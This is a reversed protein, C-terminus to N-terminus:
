RCDQKPIHASLSTGRLPKITNGKYTNPYTAKAVDLCTPMIDMIHGAQEKIIRNKQPIGKPWHVLLPTRAGGEHAWSKYFRFPTNSANAWSERYAVYSGREGIPTEPDHLKRGTINEACGGNDALFFILTNELAGNNELTALVKGIGQDMRDIMAAYVAMRLAWDEKNEVEEWNPITEPRPSLRFSSDIIGLELQRQYREKRLSDWGIQYRNKYKSIDEPLAHLPWHPATFTLNLFFPQKSSQEYHEQIFASATDAFADTMYFGTTPPEWQQDDYAMQRVRPQDKIIEYYSSAGSILGFYRDFGRKRPWHEEREGVHWKGSMYTKYGSQQLVEAITVCEKNLYGQYPGPQKEKKISSVMAGMGAEHQYLGTLLAARTPCCKAANYFSQFRIGGEALRDLNPTQIESGYSGIDSYGMDDAMIIIINPRETDEQPPQPNTFSCSSLYSAVLLLSWSKLHKLLM